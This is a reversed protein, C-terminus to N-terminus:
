LRHAADAHAHAGADIGADADPDPDPDPDAHALLAALVRVAAAKDLPENANGCKPSQVCSPCGTTCPCTSVAEHTLRLWARAVTFGRAAFGGGGPHGDHVVITAAGTNPHWATSLGGVDWRDCAALLPLMAIAAHEAAHLAGPVDADAVGAQALVEPPVTWWTGRTCLTRPPLDLAVEGLVEGTVLRRRLFSVVQATVEVEGHHLEVPGWHRSGLVEGLTLTSTERAFTTHDVLAVRAFAVDADLDLRSVVHTVGQHVYVAGEHVSAHAAGADVTGLLRGTVEEVVRVVSGSGRLDALASAREPRTWYWGTPRRRLWGEAVLDDVLGRARPGFGALDEARLPLEAAAALLQPRLVVPNDVDFSTVELPASVLADPHEVLYHDLPDDRAVLVALAERGARGARGVQQWWSARRGPWGAVVVADLGHVDIGLELASTAAVARLRGDRLRAELDRREEPLLGARYAAVEDALGPATEDLRERAWQAVSEASRRARAFVITRAGAVVLDTVLEAAEATASRRVPAGHEGLLGVVPPEWLLIRRAARPSGDDDVTVVPEGVLRSATLGPQATTASALVVVPQAGHHRAVRLLRRLVAAVHSGLLGRYAHCEDVVIYRLRRLFSTWVEHGPLLSHHLLDPNTLVVAAHARAWAREDPPTDGDYPAARVGPVALERLARWQDHALAKTPSLYLATAGRGTPAAAGEVVATLAPLWFALSKGSATGTSVVVHRGQHAHEAAEGQHRWPTVVGRREYAARVEPHVWAPWPVPAAPRAPEELLHRARGERGPADRLVAVLDTGGPLM